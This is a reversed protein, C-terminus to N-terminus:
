MSKKSWISIDIPVHRDNSFKLISDSARHSGHELSIMCGRQVDKYTARLCVYLKANSTRYVPKANAKCNYRDFFLAYLFILLLLLHVKLVEPCLLRGAMNAKPKCQSKKSWFSIDIPVHRDNSVMQGAPRADVPM